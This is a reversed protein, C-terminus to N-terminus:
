IIFFISVDSHRQPMHRELMSLQSFGKYCQTCKYAANLYKKDQAKAEFNKLAEEESLSTKTWFGSDLFALHKLKTKPEEFKYSKKETDETIVAVRKKAKTKSLVEESSDSDDSESKPKKRRTKRKTQKPKPKPKPKSKPKTKKAPKRKSKTPKTEEDKVTNKDFDLEVENITITNNIPETFLLKEKDNEIKVEVVLTPELGVPDTVPDDYAFSDDDSFRNDTYDTSTEEKKIEENKEIKVEEQINCTKVRENISIISM